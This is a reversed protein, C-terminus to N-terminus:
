EAGPGEIESPDAYRIDFEEDEIRSALGNPDEYDSPVKLLVLLLCQNAHANPSYEDFPVVDGPEFINVTRFDETLGFIYKYGDIEKDQPDFSVYNNGDVLYENCIRAFYMSDGSIFYGVEGNYDFDKFISFNRVPYGRLYFISEGLDPAPDTVAIFGDSSSEAVEDDKKAKFSAAFFTFLIVIVVFITLFTFSKKM